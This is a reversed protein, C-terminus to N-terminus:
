KETAVFGEVRIEFFYWSGCVIILELGCNPHLM